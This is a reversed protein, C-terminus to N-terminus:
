IECFTRFHAFTRDCMACGIFTGCARVDCARRLRQKVRVDCMHTHARVHAHASKKECSVTQKITFYYFFEVISFQM